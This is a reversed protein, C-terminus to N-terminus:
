WEHWEGELPLTLVEKEKDTFVDFSQDEGELWGWWNSWM